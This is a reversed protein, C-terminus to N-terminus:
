RRAKAKKPNVKFDLIGWIILSGALTDLVKSMLDPAYNIGNYMISLGMPDLIEVIMASSLFLAIGIAIKWPNM